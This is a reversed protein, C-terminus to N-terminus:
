LIATQIYFLKCEYKKKICDNFFSVASEETDFDRSDWSVNRWIVRYCFVEYDLIMKIEGKLEYRKSYLKM